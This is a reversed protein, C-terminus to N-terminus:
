CTAQAHPPLWTPYWIQMASPDPKWGHTQGSAPAPPAVPPAAPVAPAPPTLPALPLPPAAPEAPHGDVIFYQEPTHTDGFGLTPHESALQVGQTAGGCEPAVHLPEVQSKM